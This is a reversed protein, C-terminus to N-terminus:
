ENEGKEEVLAVESDCVFANCTEYLRKKLIPLKKYIHNYIETNRAVISNHMEEKIWNEVTAEIVIELQNM